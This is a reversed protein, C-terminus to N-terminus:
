RYYRATTPKFHAYQVVRLQGHPDVGVALGNNGMYQFRLANLEEETLTKKKAEPHVADIKAMPFLTTPIYQKGRLQQEERNNLVSLFQTGDHAPAYWHNARSAPDYISSDDGVVRHYNSPAREHETMLPRIFAAANRRRQHEDPTMPTPVYDPRMMPPEPVFPPRTIFIKHEFPNRQPTQQQPSPPGFYNPVLTTQSPLREQPVDWDKAKKNIGFWKRWNVDTHVVSMSSSSMVVIPSQKLVRVLVAM